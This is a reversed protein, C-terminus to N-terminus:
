ADEEEEEGDDPDGNEFYLSHLDPV